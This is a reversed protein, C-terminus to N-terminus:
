TITSFLINNGKTESRQSRHQIFGIIDMWNATSRPLYFSLQLPIEDKIDVPLEMSIHPPFERGVFFLIHVFEDPQRFLIFIGFSAM